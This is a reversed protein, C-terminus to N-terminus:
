TNALDRQRVTRGDKAWQLWPRDEVNLQVDASPFRLKLFDSILRQPCCKIRLAHICEM